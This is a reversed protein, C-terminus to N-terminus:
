FTNRSILACELARLPQWTNSRRTPAHCYKLIFLPKASPEIAVDESILSGPDEKVDDNDMDQVHSSTYVKISIKLPKRPEELVEGKDLDENQIKLLGFILSSFPLVGVFNESEANSIIVQFILKALDFTVDIGVVYLLVILDKSISTLNLRPMWNAISYKASLLASSLTTFM